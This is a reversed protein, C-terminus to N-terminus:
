NTGFEAIDQVYGFPSFYLYFIVIAVWLLMFLWKVSIIKRFIAFVVGIALQAWLVILTLGGGVQILADSQKFAVYPEDSAGKFVIFLSCASLVVVYAVLFRSVLHPAPRTLQM